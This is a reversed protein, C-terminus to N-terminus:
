RRGRSAKKMAQDQQERQHEFFLVWLNLEEPTMERQLQGLTMGLEKAVFMQTILAKDRKFLARM